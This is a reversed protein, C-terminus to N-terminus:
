LKQLAFRVNSDDMKNYVSLDSIKGNAYAEILDADEKTVRGNNNVDAAMYARLTKVNQSGPVNFNIYNSKAEVFDSIWIVGNTKKIMDRVKDADNKKIGDYNFTKAQTTNFAGTVDGVVVALYKVRENASEGTYTKGELKLATDSVLYHEFVDGYTTKYTEDYLLVQNTYYTTNKKWNVNESNYTQGGSGNPKGDFDGTLTMKDRAVFTLGKKTTRTISTTKVYSNDDVFYGVRFTRIEEAASASFANAMPLACMVAASVAAAMKKLTKKM